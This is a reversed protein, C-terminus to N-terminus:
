VNLVHSFSLVFNIVINASAFICYNLLLSQYKVDFFFLTQINEKLREIMKHSVCCLPSSSGKPNRGLKFYGIVVLNM